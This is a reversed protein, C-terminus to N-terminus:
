CSRNIRKSLCCIIAVKGVFRKQFGVSRLYLMQQSSKRLLMLRRSSRVRLRFRTIRKLSHKKVPTIGLDVSSKIHVNPVADTAKECRKVM